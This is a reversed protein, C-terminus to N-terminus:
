RNNVRVKHHIIAAFIVVVNLFLSSIITWFPYLFSFIGDVCNGKWDSMIYLLLLVIITYLMVVVGIFERYCKDLLQVVYSLKLHLIRFKEFGLDCVCTKMKTDIFINEEHNSPIAKELYAYSRPVLISTKVFEAFKRNYNVLLEIMICAHSLYLANVMCWHYSTVGTILLIFLKFPVSEAAWESNHFPALFLRFGNFLVSPGFFSVLTAIVNLSAMLFTVGTIIYIMYQLKRLHCRKENKAHILVSFNRLLCPERRYSEQNVFIVTAQFSCIFFWIHTVIKLILSASISESKGWFIDYISFFRVFNLWDICCLTLAYAKLLLSDEKTHYLGLVRLIKNTNSLLRCEPIVLSERQEIKPHSLNIYSPKETCTDLNLEKESVPSDKNSVLDKKISGVRDRNFM